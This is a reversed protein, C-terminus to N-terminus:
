ESYEKSVDEKVEVLKETSEEITDEITDAIKEAFTEKMQSEVDEIKEAIKETPELKEVRAELKTFRALLGPLDLKEKASGFFDKVVNDRTEELRDKAEDVMEDRTEKVEAEAKSFVEKQLAEGKKDIELADRSTDLVNQAEDVDEAGAVIAQAQILGINMGDSFQTLNVEILKLGQYVYIEDDLICFLIDTDRGKFTSKAVAEVKNKCRIFRNIKVRKMKCDGIQM